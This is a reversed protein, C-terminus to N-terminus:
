MIYLYFQTYTHTDTTCVSSMLPLWEFLVKHPRNQQRFLGRIAIIIASRRRVQTGEQWVRQLVQPMHALHHALMRMRDHGRVVTGGYEGCGTSYRSSPARNSHFNFRNDNSMWLSACQHSALFAIPIAKSVDARAAPYTRNYLACVHAQTHTKTHTYTSANNM